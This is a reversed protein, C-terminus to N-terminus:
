VSVSGVVADNSHRLKMGFRFLCSLTFFKGLTGVHRSAHSEFRRGEPSLAGFKGGLSWTRCIPLVIGLPSAQLTIDTNVINYVLM